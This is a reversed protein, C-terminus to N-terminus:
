GLMVGIQGVFFGVGGGVAVFRSRAFNRIRPVLRFGPVCGAVIRAVIAAFGFQVGFRFFALRLGVLGSRLIERGVVIRRLVIRGTAVVPLALTKGATAAAVITASVTASVTAGVAAVVPSTAAASAPTAASSAMATATRLTGAAAVQRRRFVSRRLSFRAALGATVLIAARMLAEFRTTEIVPAAIRRTM